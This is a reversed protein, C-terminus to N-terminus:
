CSQSLFNNNLTSYTTHLIFYHQTNCSVVQPQSKILQGSWLSGALIDNGRKQVLEGLGGDLIVSHSASEVWDHWQEVSSNNNNNNNDHDADIPIISQTM